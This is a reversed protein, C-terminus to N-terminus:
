AAGLLLCALLREQRWSGDFIRRGRGDEGGGGGRVQLGHAPDDAEASLAQPFPRATGGPRFLDEVSFGNAQAISKLILDHDQRQQEAAPWRPDARSLCM